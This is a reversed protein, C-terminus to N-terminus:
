KFFEKEINKIKKQRRKYKEVDLTKASLFAEVLEEVLSSGVIQGALCMVNMADHEVGQHASYTDSILGAYIGKMKNIAINVGVGSGCLVIGREAEGRQIARGAKEAFDPFDVSELSDTGLDIAEHGAKKVAKLVVEKMLFGAHDSAIVIRM